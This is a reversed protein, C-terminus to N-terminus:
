TSTSDVELSRPLSLTKLTPFNSSLYSSIESLSSYDGKSIPKDFKNYFNIHSQLQHLLLNWVHDEIQTSNALQCLKVLSHTLTLMIQFNYIENGTETYLKKMDQIGKPSKPLVTSPFLEAKLEDELLSMSEKKPLLGDLRATSDGNLGYILSVQPILVSLLRRNLTYILAKSSVKGINLCDLIKALEKLNYKNLYKITEVTILDYYHTNKNYLLTMSDILFYLDKHDLNQIKKMLSALLLQAINTVNVGSKDPLKYACM